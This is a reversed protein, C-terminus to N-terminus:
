NKSAQKYSHGIDPEDRRQDCTVKDFMAYVRNYKYYIYVNCENIIYQDVPNIIVDNYYDLKDADCNLTDCLNTYDYKAADVSVLDKVSMRICPYKDLNSASADGITGNEGYYAHKLEDDEISFACVSKSTRVVGVNDTGYIEASGKELTEIKSEYTQKKLNKSIKFISPISLSLILGLIVIVALLEVLTFGKNKM